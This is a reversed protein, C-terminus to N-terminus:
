LVRHLMTPILADELYRGLDVRGGDLACASTKGLHHLLKM